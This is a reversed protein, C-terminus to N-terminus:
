STLAGRVFEQSMDLADHSMVVGPWPVQDPPRAVYALMVGHPTPIRAEAM